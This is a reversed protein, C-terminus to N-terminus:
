LSPIWVINDAPLFHCVPSSGPQGGLVRFAVHDSDWKSTDMHCVAIADVINGNEGGLSIEFVRNYGKHGHCYYVAYPYAMTHCAVMNSVNIELPEKLFTYEQLLTNSLNHINTTLAKLKVMGMIGRTMDLISELSSACFRTEGPTAELECQKLTQEMALAQPSGNTLSILELLYSLKSSSFPISDSQERTLLRPTTSPDNVAFYIPMKKGSYLDTVHFFVNLAPDLDYINNKGNIKIHNEENRDIKQDKDMIERGHCFQILLLAYFSLILSSSSSAM